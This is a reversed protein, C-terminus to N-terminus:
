PCGAGTRGKARWEVDPEDTLPVTQSGSVTVCGRVSDVRMKHEWTDDWDSGEQRWTKGAQSATLTYPYSGGPHAHDESIWVCLYGSPHKAVQLNIDVIPGRRKTEVPVFAFWEEDTSTAAYEVESCTSTPSRGDSGGACAGLSALLSVPLAALVLIRKTKQTVM